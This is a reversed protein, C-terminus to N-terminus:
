PSPEACSHVRVSFRIDKGYLVPLVRATPGGSLLPSFPGINIVDGLSLGPLISVFIAKEKEKKKKKRRRKKDKLM